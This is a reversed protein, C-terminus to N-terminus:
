PSLSVKRHFDPTITHLHQSFHRQVLENVQIFTDNNMVALLENLPFVMATNREILYLLPCQSLILHDQTSQLAGLGVSIRAFFLFPCERGNHYPTDEQKFSYREGYLLPNPYASLPTGYVPRMGQEEVPLTNMGVSSLHFAPDDTEGRLYAVTTELNIAIIQLDKEPIERDAAKAVDNLYYKPRDILKCIYTVTKGQKKALQKIRDTNM